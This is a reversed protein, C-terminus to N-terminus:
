NEYLSNLLATDAEAMQQLEDAYEAKAQPGNALFASFKAMNRGPLDAPSLNLGDHQYGCYIDVSKGEALWQRVLPRLAALHKHHQPRVTIGAECGDPPCFIRVAGADLGSSKGGWINGAVEDHAQYPVTIFRAEAPDYWYGYETHPLEM